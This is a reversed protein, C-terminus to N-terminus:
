LCLRFTIQPTLGLTPHVETALDIQYHREAYGVGFTMTTPNTALGARAAMRGEYIYEMGCRVRTRDDSSVEATATLSGIPRYVFGARGGAPRHIDWRRSHVAIYADLTNGTNVMLATGADLWHQPTYHADNTAMHSYIGYIAITLWRAAQVGGAMTAQQEHYAADGFHSYHLTSFWREGIPTAVEIQRTAMGQVMFGQRWGISLATSTIREPILCGGLACQRASQATPILQAAAPLAAAVLLVLLSVGKNNM